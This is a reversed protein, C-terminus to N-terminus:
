LALLSAQNPDVFHSRCSSCLGKKIRSRKFSQFSKGCKGCSGAFYIRREKYKMPKIFIANMKIIM